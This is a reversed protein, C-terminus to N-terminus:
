PEPEYPLRPTFNALARGPGYTLLQPVPRAPQAVGQQMDMAMAMTRGQPSLTVRDVVGYPPPYPRGGDGGHAPLPRSPRPRGVPQVEELLKQPQVDMIREMIGHGKSCSNSYSYSSDALVVKM